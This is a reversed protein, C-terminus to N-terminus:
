VIIMIMLELILYFYQFFTRQSLTFKMEENLFEGRIALCECKVNKLLNQNLVSPESELQPIIRISTPM